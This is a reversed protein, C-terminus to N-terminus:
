VKQVEEYSLTVMMTEDLDDGAGRGQEAADGGGDRGM